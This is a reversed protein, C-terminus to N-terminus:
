GASDMRRPICWVPEQRFHLSDIDLIVPGMLRVSVALAGMTAIYGWKGRQTEVVFILNRSASARQKIADCADVLANLSTDSGLSFETLPVNISITTPLHVMPVHFAPYYKRGEQLTLLARFTGFGGIMM